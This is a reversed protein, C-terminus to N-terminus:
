QERVNIRRINSTNEFDFPPFSHRLGQVLRCDRGARRAGLQGCAQMELADIGFHMQAVPFAFATANPQDAPAVPPRACVVELCREAGGVVRDLFAREVVLRRLSGRSGLHLFNAPFGSGRCLSQRRGHTRGDLGVDGFTVGAVAAALAPLHSGVGALAQAAVHEALLLAALLLGNRGRWQGVYRQMGQPFRVKQFPSCPQRLHELHRRLLAGDVVKLSREVACVRGVTGLKIRCRGAIM